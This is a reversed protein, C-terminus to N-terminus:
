QYRESAAARENIFISHKVFGAVCDDVYFIYKSATACIKVPEVCFICVKLQLTQRTHIGNAWVLSFVAPEARTDLSDKRKNHSHGFMVSIAMLLNDLSTKNM